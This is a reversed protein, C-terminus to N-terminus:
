RPVTVYVGDLTLIRTGKETATSGEATLWVSGFESAFVVQEAESASVALTILLQQSPAEAKTPDITSNTSGNLESARTADTQSFQVSTVLVKQLTLHTTNPTNTPAATTATAGPVTPQPTAPVGAASVQFPQFSFVIGVTDGPALTGGVAREPSLAITIEQLGAPVPVHVLVRPDVFRATVLQEGKLLDVGAVYTSELTTLDKVSDKAVLRAPVDTLAVKTTLKTVTTGKAVDTQVVYVKELKEGKVADNKASKVYSVLAVTGVIALLVAVTIGIVQRKM